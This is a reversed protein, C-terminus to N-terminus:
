RLLLIGVSYVASPLDSVGDWIPRCFILFLSAGSGAAAGLWFSGNVALDIRGSLRRIVRRHRLQHCINAGIGFGHDSPICLEFNWSTATLYAVWIFSSTVYFVLRHRFRDALWSFLSTMM